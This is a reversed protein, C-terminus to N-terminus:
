AHNGEERTFHLREERNGAFPKRLDVKIGSAANNRSSTCSDGSSKLMQKAREIRYYCLRERFSTGLGDHFVKSVHSPSIHFHRCLDSRRLSANSLHDKLFADLRNVLTHTPRHRRKLLEYVTSILDNKDVPKTLIDRAGAKMASVAPKIGHKETLLVIDTQICKQQVAQLIDMGSLNPLSIDLIAIGYYANCVSQATSRSRQPNNRCAM